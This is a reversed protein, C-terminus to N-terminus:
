SPSARDVSSRLGSWRYQVPARSGPRNAQVIAQADAALARHRTEWGAAPVMAIIKPEGSDSAASQRRLAALPEGLLADRKFGFMRELERNVAVIAGAADSQQGDVGSM